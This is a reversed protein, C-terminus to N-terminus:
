IPKVARLREVIGLKFREQREIDLGRERLQHFPRRLYNGALPVSFVEIVRQLQRVPWASSTVHDALLLRGGPRLVRVMEAAAKRDDPIACLSFTAAVTDVSDDPFDLHQADGVRLDVSRGLEDARRRAGDLMARSWDVGTITADPPYLPLNLGTGIAVELVQGTAQTCVWERTDDFAYRDLFGMSRDYSGAHKDWKRRWRQQQTDRTM